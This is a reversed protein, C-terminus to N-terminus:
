VAHLNENKHDKGCQPCDTKLTNFADLHLARDFSCGGKSTWFFWDFCKSGHAQSVKFGCEVCLLIDDGWRDRVVPIHCLDCTKSLLKM